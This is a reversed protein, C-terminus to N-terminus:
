QIVGRDARKQAIAAYGRAQAFRPDDPIYVHPLTERVPFLAVGGGAVILTDTSRIPGLAAVLRPYLTDHWVAAATEASLRRLEAADPGGRIGADPRDELVDQVIYFVDTYDPIPLDYRNPIERQLRLYVELGGTSLSMARAEQRKGDIYPVVSTIVHGLDVVFTRRPASGHAAIYDHYIGDGEYFIWLTLRDPDLRVERDNRRVTVGEALLRAVTEGLRPADVAALAPPVGTVVLVHSPEAPADALVAGVAALLALATIEGTKHESLDYRASPADLLTFRRGGAEILPTSDEDPHGMHTMWGPVLGTPLLIKRDGTAVKIASRGIDVGIYYVTM